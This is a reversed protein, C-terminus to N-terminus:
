MFECLMVGDIVSPLLRTGAANTLVVKGRTQPEMLVARLTEGHDDSVVALVIAHNTRDIAPGTQNSPPTYIFRAVAASCDTLQGTLRHQRRLEMAAVGAFDYCVTEGERFGDPMNYNIAKELAAKCVPGFLWKESSLAYRSAPTFLKEYSVGLNFMFEQLRQSTISIPM